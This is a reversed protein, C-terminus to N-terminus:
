ILAQLSELSGKVLLHQWKTNPIACTEGHKSASVHHSTVKWQKQQHCFTAAIVATSECFPQLNNKYSKKLHATKYLSYMQSM